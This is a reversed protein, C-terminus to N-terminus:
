MDLMTATSQSIVDRRALAPLANPRSCRLSQFTCSTDLSVGSLRIGLCVKKPCSAVPFRGCLPDTLLDDDLTVHFPAFDVRRVQTAGWQIAGGPTGRTVFWSSLELVRTEWSEFMSSCDPFKACSWEVFRTGPRAAAAGPDAVGSNSEVWIYPSVSSLFRDTTRVACDLTDISFNSM